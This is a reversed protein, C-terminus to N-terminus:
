VDDDLRRRAETLGLGLVFDDVEDQEARRAALGVAACGVMMRYPHQDGFELLRELHEDAIQLQAHEFRARLPGRWQDSPIRPELNVRQALKSLSYPRRVLQAVTREESGDVLVLVDANGAYLDTITTVLAVGDAYDVARQLEDIFVVVRKGHQRAIELPLALVTRLTATPVSARFESLDLSVGQANLWGQVFPVSGKVLGRAIRQLDLRATRDILLQCLGEASSQEPAEFEIVVCGHERELVECAAGCVSTKGIRRAGSLLVHERELLRQVVDAVAGQRGIMQAPALRGGVPFLEGIPLKAKTM